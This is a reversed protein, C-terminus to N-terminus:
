TLFEKSISCIIPSTWNKRINETCLDFKGKFFVLFLVKFSNQMIHVATNSFWAFENEYVRFPFLMYTDM